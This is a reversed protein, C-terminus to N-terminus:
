RQVCCDLSIMSERALPNRFPNVTQRQLHVRQVRKPPRPLLPSISRHLAEKRLSTGTQSVDAEDRQSMAEVGECRGALSVSVNWVHAGRSVLLKVRVCM